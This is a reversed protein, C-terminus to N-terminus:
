REPVPDDKGIRIGAYDRSNDKKHREWRKRKLRMAEAEKGSLGGREEGVDGACTRNKEMSASARTLSEKRGEGKGRAEAGHAIQKHGHDSSVM